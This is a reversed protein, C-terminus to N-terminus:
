AAVEQTSLKQRLKEPEMQLLEWWDHTPLSLGLLQYPCAGRRKGHTFPRCNWFVRKLDLMEQSVHRQRAQHMRLVSHMCEVTSSARVTHTVIHGVRADAQIWDPCLRQCLILSEVVLHTAHAQRTGHTHSMEARWYRLRTVAARLLPDPVAQAMEDQRWDLHNLTRPDQLLRRVKGWEEGGMESITDRIQQQAWPRDHLQGDPRWLALAAKIRHLAAEAAVAQDFVGEAQRWAQRSRGAAGRADIGRQKAQAVQEDAQSATELGQAASAWRRSVIRQMERATHLVELGNQVPESWPQEPASTTAARADNLLKV